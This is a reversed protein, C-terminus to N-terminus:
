FAAHPEKSLRGPACVEPQVLARGRYGVSPHAARPPDPAGKSITETKLDTGFRKVTGLSIEHLSAPLSIPTM